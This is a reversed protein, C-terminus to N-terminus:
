PLPKGIIEDAWMSGAQNPHLCTVGRWEAPPQDDIIVHPKSLYGAFCDAIGAETAAQFSYAAGGSSWCYLEVGRDHLERVREITRSMPIRKSGASRILTDDVDVFCVNPPNSRGSNDPAGALRTRAGAIHEIYNPALPEPSREGARGGTKM